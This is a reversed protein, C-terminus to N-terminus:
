EKRRNDALARDLEPNSLLTSISMSLKSHKSNLIKYLNTYHIEKDSKTVFPDFDILCFHLYLDLEMTNHLTRLVDRVTIGKNITRLVDDCLYEIGVGVSNLGSEVLFRLNDYNATDIARASCAWLVNGHVPQLRILESAISHLYEWNPGDVSIQVSLHYRKFIECINLAVLEPNTLKPKSRDCFLCKNYFCGSGCNLQITRLNKQISTPIIPVEVDSPLLAKTILGTDHEINEKTINTSAGVIQLVDHTSTIVRAHAGMGGVIIRPVNVNFISPDSILNSFCAVEDNGVQFPSECFRFPLGLQELRHAFYFLGIAYEYSYTHQGKRNLILTYM